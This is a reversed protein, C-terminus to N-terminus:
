EDEQVLTASPAILAPAALTALNSPKLTLQKPAAIAKMAQRSAIAEAVGGWIINLGPNKALQNSIEKVGQASPGKGLTTARKPETIKSVKLMNELLKREQPSFLVRLKDKGENKGFSKLASEMSARTMAPDSSVERIAKNRIHTMAEARLSDWAVDGGDSDLLYRKLQELDTSRVRTSLVTEQLFRDPNIKNDLIDRVLEFKRNDFKNVKSRRLSKEFSAKMSRAEGFIDKGVADQVDLDIAEKFNRLESRGNPTLSDYLTNLEIRIEEAVKPNVRGQIKFGKKPLVGKAKLIDKTASILGGTIRDSGAKNTLAAELRTFKVVQEDGAVQRAAKYAGSIAADRDIAQDAIFDFVASASPNASGGTAVIANDFKRAAVVGQGDIADRVAGSTKFLEQQNQFDTVDQTVQARTPILGQEELFTRRAIQTADEINDTKLLKQSQEAVDEFSLGAEDLAKQFQSTPLGSADLITDPDKIFRNFVKRGVRGVRPLLLELGAAIGGGLLAGQATEETSGGQGRTLIGGELGGLGAAAAARAPITAINGVAAGPVIFPVVQGSIRGITSSIPRDTELQEIFRRQQSSPEDVFGLGRGVDKIGESFGVAASGLAGVNSTDVKTPKNSILDSANQAATRPQVAKGSEILRKLKEKKISLRRDKLAQILEERTAM